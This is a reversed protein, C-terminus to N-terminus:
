LHLLTIRGTKEVPMKIKCKLNSQVGSDLYNKLSPFSSDVEEFSLSLVSTM